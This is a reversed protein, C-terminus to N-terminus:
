LEPKEEKDTQALVFTEKAAATMYSGGDLHGTFFMGAHDDLLYCGFRAHGQRMGLREVTRKLVPSLKDEVFGGRAVMQYPEHFIFDRYHATDVVHINDYWFLTPTLSMQHKGPTPLSTLTQRHEVELIAQASARYTETLALINDRLKDTAFDMLETSRSNPGYEAADVLLEPPREICANLEDLYARGYKGLFIDRYLLNSRMSMGVYKIRPHHWMANLVHTMPTPRMFTRDHQIVCVFPTTVCERLAHRLAFGYGHRSDLEEVTCNQFVTDVPAAACKEKLANKFAQYNEAQNQNVIGNRMAQKPNTHKKTVKADAADQRYGDCVIVKRCQYAFDTGARVFTEMTRELLETSPHSKIPSTTIVITLVEELSPMPPKPIRDQPSPIYGFLDDDAIHSAENRSEPLTYLKVVLVLDTTTESAMMQSRWNWLFDKRKILLSGAPMDIDTSHRNSELEWCNAQRRRPKNVHQVASQLLPIQAVFYSGSDQDVDLAPLQVSEFTTVTHNSAYEGSRKMKRISFEEVAAHTPRLGTASELFDRLRLLSEPPLEDLDHPNTEVDSLHYRQVRRRQDFGEWVFERTQIDKVLVQQTVQDVFCRHFSLGQPLPFEPNSVSITSQDAQGLDKAVPSTLSLAHWEHM